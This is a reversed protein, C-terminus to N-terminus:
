EIEGNWNFLRQANADNTAERGKGKLCEALPDKAVIDPSVGTLDEPTTLLDATFNLREKKFGFKLIQLAEMFDYKIRNRRETDTEASSSFARECPVSTAQIPLYDLAM